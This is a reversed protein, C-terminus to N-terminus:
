GEQRSDQTSRINKDKTTKVRKRSNKIHVFCGLNKDKKESVHIDGAKLTHTGMTVEGVRMMGYYALCFIAKYMTELYPQVNEEGFLRELEFILMEFLNKQICLKIKVRDNELKCGKVLSSLIAKNNDWQYGDQRLIFKIASIYSKLTSSQVGGDVLHAGFLATKEEWSLNERTDLSIIFKNLHRWIGLYYNITSDRTQRNKFKELISNLYQVSIKSSNSSYQSSSEDGISTRKKQKRQGLIINVNGYKKCHCCHKLYLLKEKM